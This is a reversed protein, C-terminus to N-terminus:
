TDVQGGRYTKPRLCHIDDNASSSSSSNTDALPPLLNDLKKQVDDPDRYNPQQVNPPCFGSQDLRPPTSPGAPQSQQRQRKMSSQLLFEFPDVMPPRKAANQKRQDSKEAWHASDSRRQALPRTRLLLKM